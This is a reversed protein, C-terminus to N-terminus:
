FGMLFANFTRSTKPPLKFIITKALLSFTNNAPPRELNNQIHLQALSSCWLRFTFISFHTFYQSHFIPLIFISFVIFGWCM